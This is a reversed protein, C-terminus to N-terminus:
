SNGGTGSTTSAIPDYYGMTTKPDVSGITRSAPIIVAKNILTNTIGYKLCNEATAEAIETATCSFSYVLRGLQQNPTLSINSLKVLINGQTLSRLLKINNTNLFDIVKQRFLKEFVYDNEPYINHQYNYDNYQTIYNNKIQQINLGDELDMFNTILGSISLTKYNMRGPRQFLPYRSGITEVPTDATKITINSIQSDFKIPLQQQATTLFLDEAYCLIPTNLLISKNDTENIIKYQYYIGPEITNDIWTNDGKQLNVTTQFLTEYTYFNDRSNLRKITITKSSLASNLNLNLKIIGLENLTDATLTAGSWATDDKNNTYLWIREEGWSYLNTTIIQLKIKIKENKLLRHKIDYSASNNKCLIQGSEEILYLDTKDDNTEYIKFNCYRVKESDTTTFATSLTIESDCENFNSSNPALTNIKATVEDVGYILIVKSWESFHALNNNIWSASPTAPVESAGSDTFRIQVKYFHNKQFSTVDNNTITIYSQNEPIEKFIIETASNAVSRNTASDKITIQIGTIKNNKIKYQDITNFESLSFDIKCTWGNATYLFAPAAVGDFIPPYLVSSTGNTM